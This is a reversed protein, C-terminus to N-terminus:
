IYAFFLGTEELYKEKQAERTDQPSSECPVYARDNQRQQMAYVFHKQITKPWKKRKPTCRRQVRKEKPTDRLIEKASFVLNDFELLLIQDAAAKQVQTTTAYKEREEM